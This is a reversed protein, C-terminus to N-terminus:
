PLPQSLIKASGLFALELAIYVRNLGLQPLSTVPIPAWPIKMITKAMERSTTPVLNIATLMFRMTLMMELLTKYTNEKKAFADLLALPIALWQMALSFGSKKERNNISLSLM